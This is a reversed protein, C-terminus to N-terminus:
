NTRRQSKMGSCGTKLVEKKNPGYIAKSGQLQRSSCSGSTGVCRVAEFSCQLRGQKRSHADHQLDCCRQPVKKLRHPSNTWLLLMLMIRYTYIFLVFLYTEPGRLFFSDSYQM